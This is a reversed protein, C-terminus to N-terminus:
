TLNSYRRMHAALEARAHGSRILPASVESHHMRERPHRRALAAKIKGFTSPRNFANLDQRNLLAGENPRSLLLLEGHGEEVLFSVVVQVSSPAKDDFAAELLHFRLADAAYALLACEAPDTATVTLDPSIAVRGPTELLASVIAPDIM